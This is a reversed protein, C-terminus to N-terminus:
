PLMAMSTDIARSLLDRVNDVAEIECDGHASFHESGREGCWAEYGGEGNEAVEIDYKKTVEVQALGGADDLELWKGYNKDSNEPNHITEDWTGGVSDDWLPPFYENCSEPADNIADILRKVALYPNCAVMPCQGIADDCQASYDGSPLAYIRVDFGGFYGRTMIKPEDM